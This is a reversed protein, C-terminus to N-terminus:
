VHTSLTICPRLCGGPLMARGMRAGGEPGREEVDAVPLAKGFRNSAGTRAVPGLGPCWLAPDADRSSDEPDADRDRAIKEGTAADFLGHGDHSLVMVLDQGSGPHPAFGIGLLGGVPTYAIRRWPDPAQVVPAALLRQRMAQQYPSLEPEPVTQEVPPGDKTYKTM